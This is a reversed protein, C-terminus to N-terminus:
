VRHGLAMLVTTVLLMVGVIPAARMARKRRTAADAMLATKEAGDPLGAAKASLAGATILNRRMGYLGLFLAITAMIGGTGFVMAGPTASLAPDFGATYRWYLWFGSAVNVMAVIPV